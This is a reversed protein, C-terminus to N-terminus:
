LFILRPRKNSFITFLLPFYKESLVYLSTTLYQNMERVDEKWDDARTPVLSLNFIRNSVYLLQVIRYNYICLVTRFVHM